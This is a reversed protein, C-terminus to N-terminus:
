QQDSISLLRASGIMTDEARGSARRVRLVVLSNNAALSALPIIVEHLRTPEGGLHESTAIVAPSFALDAIPTASAGPAVSAVSISWAVAGFTSIGACWQLRVETPASDILWHAASAASADFEVFEIPADLVRGVSAGGTLQVVADSPKLQM